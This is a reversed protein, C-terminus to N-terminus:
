LADESLDKEYDPILMQACPIPRLFEKHITKMDELVALMAFRAVVHKWQLLLTDRDPCELVFDVHDDGTKILVCKHTRALPYRDRDLKTAPLLRCVNLLRLTQCQAELSQTTPKWQICPELLAVHRDQQILAGREMWATVPLPRKNPQHLLLTWSSNLTEQVLQQINKTSVKPVVAPPAREDFDEPDSDYGNVSQSPKLNHESYGTGLSRSTRRMVPTMTSRKLHRIRRAREQLNARQPGQPQAVELLRKKNWLFDMETSNPGVMWQLLDFIDAQLLQEYTKPPDENEKTDGLSSTCFSMSFTETIQELFSPEQRVITSGGSPPNCCGALPSASRSSEMSTHLSHPLSSLEDDINLISNHKNVVGRSVEVSAPSLAVMVDTNDSSTNSVTGALSPAEDVQRQVEAAVM